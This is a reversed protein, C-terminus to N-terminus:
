VGALAILPELATPEGVRLPGVGLSDEKTGEDTVLLGAEAQLRTLISAYTLQADIAALESATLQEETLIVNILTADGMHLRKTSDELVRRQLRVAELQQDLNRLAKDLSRWTQTIRLQISRRRDRSAIQSRREVATAQLLQGKARRNRFPLEWRLLLRASPFTQTGALADYFGDIEYSHKSFSEFLGTYGLAFSVDLRSRLDHQAARRLSFAAEEFLGLSQLDRRNRSVGAALRQLDLSPPLLVPKPLPDAALPAQEEADVDLGVVRALEMRADVVAQRGLAVERKSAALRAKARSSDAAPMEGVEIMKEVTNQLSKERKVALELRELRDQAAALRWYAQAAAAASSNATQVTQLLGAQLSLQASREPAATSPGAGKRLPKQFQFGWFSTFTTPIGRGGFRPLLSKGEFNDEVSELIMGMQLDLGGRFSRTAQLDLLFGYRRAIDPLGGLDIVAQRGAESVNRLTILSNSLQRRLLETQTDRVGQLQGRTEPDDELAILLDVFEQLTQGRAFDIDSVCVQFGNVFVIASRCPPFTRGDAELVEQIADALAGIDDRLIRQADRRNVEALIQNPLL